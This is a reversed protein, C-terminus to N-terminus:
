RDLTSRDWKLSSSLRSLTIENDLDGVYYIDYNLNSDLHSHHTGGKISFYVSLPFLYKPSTSPLVTQPPVGM